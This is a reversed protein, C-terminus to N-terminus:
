MKSLDSLIKLRNEFSINLKGWMEILYELLCHDSIKDIIVIIYGDNFKKLISSKLKKFKNEFQIRYNEEKEIYSLLYKGFQSFENCPNEHLRLSPIKSELLTPILIDLNSSTKRLNQQLIKNLDDKLTFKIENSGNTM